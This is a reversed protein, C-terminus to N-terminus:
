NQASALDGKPTFCKIQRFSACESSTCLEGTGLRKTYVASERQFILASEYGQVKCFSDAAPKGCDGTSTLCSDVRLGDISPTFYSRVAAHGATATLVLVLTDVTIKM